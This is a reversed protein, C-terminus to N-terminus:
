RINSIGGDIKIVQGTIFSADNSLLFCAMSAIDNVNGFKQLPHRKAAAERKSADSLLKAALPTDTLSPAIANIRINPALEAALSYTLGEIAAKAAAISTHFPMGTQAAVSSFLLIAGKAKKLNPLVNQISKVAGLFNLQWDNYFDEATLRNFPKLNISGPCYVLGDLHEPLLTLDFEDQIANFAIGQGIVSTHNASRFTSFVRHGQLSLKEAINKGIGSSAGIILYNM